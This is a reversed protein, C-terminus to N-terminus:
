LERVLHMSAITARAPGGTNGALSYMNGAPTDIQATALVVFKDGMFLHIDFSSTNTVVNSTTGTPPVQTNGLTKGIFFDFGTTTAQRQIAVLSGIDAAPPSDLWCSIFSIHYVGGKPITFIGSTPDYINDTDYDVVDYPIIASVGNDAVTLLTAPLVQSGRVSVAPIDTLGKRPALISNSICRIGPNAQNEPNLSM